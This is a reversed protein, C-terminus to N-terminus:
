LKKKIIQTAIIIGGGFLLIIKGYKEFYYILAGKQEIQQKELEAAAAANQQDHLAKIEATEVFAGPVHKVYTFVGQANRFMWFVSGNNVVYSYVIGILSGAPLTRLPTSDGPLRYVAVPTAAYFTLGIFKGADTEFGRIQQM